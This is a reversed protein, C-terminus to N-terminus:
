LILIYKVRYTNCFLAATGELIDKWRKGVSECKDCAMDRIEGFIARKFVRFREVIRMVDIICGRDVMLGLAASERKLRRGHLPPMEDDGSVWSGEKDEKDWGRCELM